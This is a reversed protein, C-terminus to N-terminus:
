AAVLTTLGLQLQPDLYVSTSRYGSDMCVHYQQWMYSVILAKNNYDQLALGESCM